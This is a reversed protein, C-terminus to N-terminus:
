RSVADHAFYLMLLKPVLGHTTHLLTGQTSFYFSTPLTSVRGFGDEVEPSDRLLLSTVHQRSMFARAQPYQAGDAVIGLVLLRGPYDDQLSQLWPTEIKCPACWPAWFNVVVAKGKLTDPKITMGDITTFPLSILRLSPSPSRRYPYFYRASIFLFILILFSRYIWKKAM